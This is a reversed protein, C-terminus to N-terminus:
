SDSSDDSVLRGFLWNLEDSSDDSHLSETDSLEVVDCPDAPEWPHPSLYITIYVGWIVNGMTELRSAFLLFSHRGSFCCLFVVFM